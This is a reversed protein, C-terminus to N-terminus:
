VASRPGSPPRGASTELARGHLHLGRPGDLMARVRDLLIDVAFPKALFGVTGAEVGQRLVDDEAYGSVFLFGARPCLGTLREALRRGSLGPLVVDMLVLDIRAGAREAWGLAAEAGDAELTAYGARELAECALHRASGVDEVVLVTEGSGRLSPVRVGPAPLAVAPAAAPLLVRVTTGHAPVSEIEVRGRSEEAVSRVLTLGLGTGHGPAKTTFFPEFVRDLLAADIGAGTDVVELAAYRGPAFGQEARRGSEPVVFSTTRVRLLGGDPMADRANVSLNLVVQGLQAPDGRVTCPPTELEIELTMNEPLLRRLMPETEQVAFNWDTPLSQRVRVRSHALLRSTLATASRGARGIEQAWHHTEVGPPLTSTLLDAFGVVATLVNNLDHALGGALRGVLELKEAQQLRDELRRVDTVDQVIGAARQPRGDKDSAVVRGRVELHRVRGAREPVRHFLDLVPSLGRLQAEFAARVEARDEPHACAVWAAVTPVPASAPHAAGGEPVARLMDTGRADLRLAGSAVVLDWLGLSAASAALDLGQRAVRVAEEARNARDTQIANGVLDAVSAAFVQDASTWRRKGGVHEHCVVGITSASVRLPADLMSVIGFPTLYDDGFECTTPDTYADDATVLIQREFARWYAPYDGAALEMGSSHREKSAEYLCVCRLAKKADDLLWVGVREVGMTVADVRTIERLAADLGRPRLINLRYLRMLAESRQQHVRRAEREESVEVGVGAMAVPAPGSAFVPFRTWLLTQPPSSGPLQEETAVPARAKEAALDGEAFRKAVDPPLVAEPTKGILDGPSMGFLDAFAGNAALFRGDIGRAYIADRTHQSLAALLITSLDLGSPQPTGGPTPAPPPLGPMSQPM